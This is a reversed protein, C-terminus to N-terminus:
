WNLFDVIKIKQKQERGWIKYLRLKEECEKRTPCQGLEWRRCINIGNGSFPIFCIDILKSCFNDKVLYDEKNYKMKM